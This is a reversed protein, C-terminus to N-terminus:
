KNHYLAILKLHFSIYRGSYFPSVLQWYKYFKLWFAFDEKKSDKLLNRWDNENFNIKQLNRLFDQNINNWRVQLNPPQLNYTLFKEHNRNRKVKLNLVRQQLKSFSLKFQNRLGEGFIKRESCAAWRAVQGAVQQDNADLEEPWADHDTPFKLSHGSM